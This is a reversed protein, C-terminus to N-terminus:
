FREERRSAIVAESLDGKPHAIEARFETLDPLPSPMAPMPALRAATKGHRTIVTTEGNEAMDVLASLHARAEKVSLTQM